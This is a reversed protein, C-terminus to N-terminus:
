RMMPGTMWIVASKRSGSTVPYAKHKLCSPFALISGKEIDPNYEQYLEVGFKGGEFESTDNLLCVVTIKREKESVELPFNDVHWDYHGGDRYDGMQLNEHGDIKYNWGCAKNAQNGLEAMIGGFWHGEQAFRLITKRGEENKFEGASGMVADRPEISLLEELALDCLAPKIKGLFWIPLHAM